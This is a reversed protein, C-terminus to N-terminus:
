LYNRFDGDTANMVEIEYNEWFNGMTIYRYASDAVFEFEMIRWTSDQFLYPTRFQPIIELRSYQNKQKPQTTSLLIGFGNHGFIKIPNFQGNTHALSLKYKKGVELPNILKGFAYDRDSQSRFVDIKLVYPWLRIFGEGNYPSKPHTWTNSEYFPQNYYYTPTGLYDSTDKCFDDWGLCKHLPFYQLAYDVSPPREKYLEFSGNYVLNQASLRM